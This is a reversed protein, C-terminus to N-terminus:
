ATVVPILEVENARVCRSLHGDVLPALAPGHECLDPHWWQCRYGYMCRQDWERADGGGPAVVSSKITSSDDAYSAAGLLHATYPHRTNDFLEDIGAHEVVRGRYMVSVRDCIDAVVGVDHTIFLVGMHRRECLERILELILAQITVDLATTPEDAILLRPECALAVALMVRQRMGGSFMHPYDRARRHADAVGVEDLLRVSRRRAERRSIGLHVRMGEAIQEGVTFAPNLSTMPEQFVMALASGQYGRLQRPPLGILDVGEFRVTGSARAGRTPLLGMVALSTVSKGSGSEGVLGHIEGPRVTLSVDDVVRVWSRDPGVFEVALSDVALLDTQESM